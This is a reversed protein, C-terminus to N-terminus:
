PGPTSKYCYLVFPRQRSRRPKTPRASRTYTSKYCHSYLLREPRGPRDIYTDQKEATGVNARGIKAPRTTKPGGVNASHKRRDPDRKCPALMPVVNAPTRDQKTAIGYVDIKSALFPRTLTCLKIITNTYPPCLSGM